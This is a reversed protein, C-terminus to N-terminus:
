NTFWTFMIISNL